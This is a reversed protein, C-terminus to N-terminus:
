PTNFTVNRVTFPNNTYRRIFDEIGESMTSLQDTPIDSLGSVKKLEEITVIM